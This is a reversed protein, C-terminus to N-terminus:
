AELPLDSKHLKGYLLFLQIFLLSHFIPIESVSRFLVANKPYGHVYFFFSENLYFCYYTYSLANLCAPLAIVTEMLASLM